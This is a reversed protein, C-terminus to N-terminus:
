GRVAMEDQTIMSTGDKDLAVFRDYFGLMTDPVFINQAAYQQEAASGCFPSFPTM